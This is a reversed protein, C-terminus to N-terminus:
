FGASHFLESGPKSERISGKNGELAEERNCIRTM